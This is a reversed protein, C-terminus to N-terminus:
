SSAGLLVQWGEDRLSNREVDTIAGAQLAFELFMEWGAALNAVIDPTRDHFVRQERAKARLESHREPMRAKLSAIQPALWGIYVAM